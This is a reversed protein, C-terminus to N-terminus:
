RELVAKSYTIAGSLFLNNHNSTRIHNICSVQDVLLAFPAYAVKKLAMTMLFNMNLEYTDTSNNFLGVRHFHVPNYVSLVIANALGEHFGPNSGDRYLFPQKSYQLYYQIHAMEHHLSILDEMNVETCQKLRYDMKNCFDWASATCQIKRNTPKQILSHRWFEPSLPKLGISTYFEEAMQLM